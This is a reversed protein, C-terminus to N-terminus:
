SVEVGRSRLFEEPNVPAGGAPRAEFHLHPGTSNGSSGMEAIVEGARVKGERVAFSALHAYYTVSGDPHLIEMKRGYPGDWGAAVVTGDGAARVPTGMPAAFDQGTHTTRWHRSTAGFRASVRHEAVVPAAWKPRQREAEEIAQQEAREREAQEVDARRQTTAAEVREIRADPAAPADTVERGGRSARSAQREALDDQILEADSEAVTLLSAGAPAGGVALDDDSAGAQPLSMGGLAAVSLATV